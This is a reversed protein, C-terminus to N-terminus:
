GRDRPSPSTYLLCTALLRDYRKREEEVATLAAERVRQEHDQVRKREQEAKAEAEKTQDMLRKERASQERANQEQQWQLQNAIGSGEDIVSGRLAGIQAEREALERAKDILSREKAALEAAKANHDQEQIKWWLEHESEKANPEPASEGQTIDFRLPTAPPHSPPTKPMPAPRVSSAPTGQEDTKRSKTAVPTPPTPMKRQRSVPVGEPKPPPAKSPAVPGNLVPKQLEAAKEFVQAKERVTGQSPDAKSAEDGSPRASEEMSRAEPAKPVDGAQSPQNLKLSRAHTAAEATRERRSTRSRMSEGSSPEKAENKSKEVFARLMTMKLRELRVVEDRVEGSSSEDKRNNTSRTTPTVPDGKGALLAGTLEPDKVCAAMALRHGTKWNSVLQPGVGESEYGGPSDSNDTM